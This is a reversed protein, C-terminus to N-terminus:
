ALSTASFDLSDCRTFRIGQLNPRALLRSPFSAVVM